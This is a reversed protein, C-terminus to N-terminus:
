KKSKSSKKIAKKAEEKAELEKQEAIIYSYKAYQALNSYISDNLKAIDKYLDPESLMLMVNKNNGTQSTGIFDGTGRLQLDQKSIEFGDTTNCLIEAKPDDKNTQLICYSQANGRGVRGRLQHAQALGFRDSSKLVMVTSNPVNVGVEIITTSILINTENNAFSTIKENIESQKMRGTINAIKVEPYDKFYQELAAAEQSVSKVESMTDSESKDILPCVVYCQKGKRIEQLMFQNVEEDSEMRQTIIEKRGAPKELINFVKISDGFLAMATTRPIPTASMTILHPKKDTNLLKNRQEVGFRHQEDVIVVALDKFKVSDQIIAHTGVVMQITGDEIQQLLEKREKAKLGGVLYGIKVNFPAMLKCLGEYHQRALVETPAILCSQYHNEMALAMVFFAVNTKGTGVDGQVLGMLREGNKVCELIESLTKKQDGTLDYPLTDCLQKWITAKNMIFQSKYDKDNLKDKLIFNFKFLDNFVKRRQGNRIDMDNEPFHLKMTADYDSILNFKDVIDKELFDTNAIMGMAKKICDHLFTQSMDAIKKYEPIIAQYKKWDKDPDFIPSICLLGTDLRKTTGCFLFTTGKTLFKLLYPKRFWSAMFRDGNEDECIAYVQQMPGNGMRSMQVTGKIAVMQGDSMIEKVTVPYRFDYYKKPFYSILDNLTEIGVKKLQQMKADRLGLVEIPQDILRVGYNTISSLEKKRSAEESLQFFEINCQLKSVDNYTNINPTFILDLDDFETPKETKFAIGDIIGTEDYIQCTFHELNKGRSVINKFSVNKLLLHVKPNGLGCPEMKELDQILQVSIDKITTVIDYVKKESFYKDDFNEMKSLFANCFDDIKDVEVTLGAAMEHGGFQKIYSSCSNLVDYINIGDISRCSGHYTTKEEDYTLLIVPCTYVEQIRSAVIGIVGAEWDKNYLVIGKPNQNPLTKLYNMCSKLITAEITKRQENYQYLKEALEKIVEPNNSTMLRVVDSANGLRGCANIMPGFRFGFHYATIKNETGMAYKALARFAPRLNTNMKKLGLYVLARNEDKLPVLDAVTALAIFDIYKLIADNGSLAQIIKGAIGAGCLDKFPYTQGELKGDIIAVCKPLDNPNKPPEHHDTVIVEMGLRYAEEIENKGTIGCDVTIILKAGMENAIKHIANINLGYGEEHRDPIYCAVNVGINRLELALSTTAMSGDVDYDGYVVVKEKTKVKEMIKAVVKDMGIFLFPNYLDNLTPYLFKNVSEVTTYGREILINAITPSLHCNDVITKMYNDDFINSKRKVLNIM